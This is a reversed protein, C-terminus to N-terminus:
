GACLQKLPAKEGAEEYGVIASLFFFAEWAACCGRGALIGAKQEAYEARDLAATLEGQTQLM